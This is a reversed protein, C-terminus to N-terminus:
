SDNEGETETNISSFSNIYSVVDYIADEDKLAGLSLRTQQGWRDGEASGRAGSKFVKLQRVLYWDNQGALRPANLALSGEGQTGHCASCSRYYARGKEVNGKISSPAAREPVSAVFKVAAQLESKNLHVVMPQMERGVLDSSEAPARLGQKFNLLQREVYWAPLVSLDPADVSSNGRLEVGHCVVCYQFKEPTITINPEAFTLPALLAAVLMFQGSRM